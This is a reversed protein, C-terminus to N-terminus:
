SRHKQWLAIDKAHYTIILDAGARKFYSFIESIIDRERWLGSRVGEKVLSYEGSVNYVALPKDFIDKVKRVVDLYGLAPKVMVIDAGGAIDEDVKKVAPWLQRYDLQYGRRDGFSPASDAVQRFPGYFNSAFKASYGMIKKDHFGHADLENRIVRVQGDAMASPAVYDAGAEVHKLAMTSLAKLTETKNIWREGRKVIGCHGHHTYACLCIDTMVTAQPVESKVRRVANAIISDGKCAETGRWDKSSPVGFLLFQGVGSDQLKKVEDALRDESFRCVGPMSPVPQKIRRGPVVFLPYILATLDIPDIQSVTEKRLKIMKYNWAGACPM